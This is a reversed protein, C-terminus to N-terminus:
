RRILRWLTVCWLTTLLPFVIAVRWNFTLARALEGHLLASIARTMGCGWCEIGTILRILCVTPGRAIVETPISMGAIPLIVLAVILAARFSADIPVSADGAHTEGAM